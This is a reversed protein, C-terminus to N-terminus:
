VCLYAYMVEDAACEGQTEGQVQWANGKGEPQILVWDAREREGWRNM